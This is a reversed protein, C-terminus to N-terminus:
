ILKKLADLVNAHYAIGRLHTLCQAAAVDITVAHALQQARRFAMEPEADQVFDTAIIAEALEQATATHSTKIGRKNLLSTARAIQTEM